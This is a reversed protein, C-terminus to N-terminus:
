KEAANTSANVSPSAAVEGKMLLGLFLDMSIAGHKKAYEKWQRDLRDANSLSEDQLQDRHAQTVLSLALNILDDPRIRRGYDKKNLKALETAIRKRTERKVRIPATSVVATTKGTKIDQKTEM